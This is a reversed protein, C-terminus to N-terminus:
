SIEGGKSQKRNVGGGGEKRKRGQTNWMGQKRTQWHNLECPSSLRFMGRLQHIEERLSNVKRSQEPHKIGTSFLREKKKKKIVSSQTLILLSLLIEGKLWLSVLSKWWNKKNTITKRAEKKHRCSCLSIIYPSQTQLVIIKEVTGKLTEKGLCTPSEWEGRM